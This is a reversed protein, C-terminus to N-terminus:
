LSRCIRKRSGSSDTEERERRNHRGVRYTRQCPFCIVLHCMVLFNFTSYSINPEISPLFIIYEAFAVNKKAAAM